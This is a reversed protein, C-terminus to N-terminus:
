FKVKTAKNGKVVIYIQGAQPHAVEFGQITFYRADSADTSIGSLGNNKKEVLYVKTLPANHVFWQGNQARGFNGTANITITAGDGAAKAYLVNKYYGANAWAQFSDESNPVWKQAGNVDYQVPKNVDSEYTDYAPMEDALGATIGLITAEFDDTALTANNYDMDANYYVPMTANNANRVMAPFEIMYIGAQPVTFEIKAMNTVSAFANSTYSPQYAEGRNPLSVNATVDTLVVGEKFAAEDEAEVDLEEALPLVQEYRMYQLYLAYSEADVGEWVSPEESPKAYLIGTEEDTAVNLYHGTSSNKIYFLSREDGSLVFDEKVKELTWSHKTSAAGDAYAMMDDTEFLYTNADVIVIDTVGMSDTTVKFAQGYKPDVKAQTGWLAGRTLFGVGDNYLMYVGDALAPSFPEGEGIFFTMVVPKAAAYNDDGAQTAAVKLTGEGDLMIRNDVLTGLEAGYTIEYSVPLGSTATATLEYTMGVKAGLFNQDWVIKQATKAATITLVKADAAEYYENGAQNAEVEIDGVSQLIIKGDEIKATGSKVTYEVPLESSATATLEITDGLAAGAFNQNWAITQLAKLVTVDVTVTTAAWTEGDGAQSASVKATGPKVATLTRTTADLTVADGEATYTFETLGSNSTAAAFTRKDGYRFNATNINFTITQRKFGVVIEKTVPAADNFELDDGAVTAKLTITGKGTATLKNGELTAPGDVLEFVVPRGSSSTAALDVSEGIELADIEQDWTIVQEIKPARIVVNSFCIANKESAGYNQVHLMCNGDVTPTFSFNVHVATKGADSIKNGDTPTTTSSGVEQGSADTIYFKVNVNKDQGWRGYDLDVTYQVGKSLPMILQKAADSNTRGAGYVYITGKDSNTDDWRLYAGSHVADGQNFAALQDYNTQGPNIVFARAHFQGGITNNSSYWGPMVGDNECLAFNGNYIINMRQANEVMAVANLAAIAADADANTYANEANAIANVAEINNYPACQGKEFGFKAKVAAIAADLANAKDASMAQMYYVKANPQDAIAWNGQAIVNTNRQAFYVKFTTGAEPAYAYLETKYKGAQGWARFSTVGNPVYLTQGNVEITANDSNLIAEATAGTSTGPMPVMYDGVRAVASTQDVGAEAEAKYSGNNALRYMSAVEIKYLGARPAVVNFTMDMEGEFFNIGSGPQNGGNAKNPQYAEKYDKAKNAEVSVDVKTYAAEIEQLSAVQPLNGLALVDNIMKLKKAAMSEALAAGNEFKWLDAEDKDSTYRIPHYVDAGGDKAYQDTSKNKLYFAGDAGPELTWMAKDDGQNNYDTFTETDNNQWVYNVRGTAKSSRENMYFKFYDDVSTAEVTVPMGYVDLVALSGWSSNRNLYSDQTVNHLLYAGPTPVEAYLGLVGVLLLLFPLLKRKM